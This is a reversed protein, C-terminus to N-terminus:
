YYYVKEDFDYFKEIEDKVVYVNSCVVLMLFVSILLVLISRVESM